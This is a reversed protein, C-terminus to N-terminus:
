KRSRYRAYSSKFRGVKLYRSLSSKFTHYVDSNPLLDKIFNVMYNAIGNKRFERKVYVYHIVVTNETERIEGLLYGCVVNSNTPSVALLLCANDRTMLEDLLNRMSECYDDHLFPGSHPSNYYSRIISDVILAKKSYDSEEVLLPSYSVDLSILEDINNMKM